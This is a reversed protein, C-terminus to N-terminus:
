KEKIKHMLEKYLHRAKSGQSGKPRKYKIIDAVTNLAEVQEMSLAFYDVDIPLDWAAVYTKAQDPTM